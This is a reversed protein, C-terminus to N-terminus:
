VMREDIENMAKREVECRANSRLIRKVLWHEYMRKMHRSQEVLWIEQLM